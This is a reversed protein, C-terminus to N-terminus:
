TLLVLDRQSCKLYGKGEIIFSAHQKTCQVTAVGLACCLNGLVISQDIDLKWPTELASSFAREITTSFASMQLRLVLTSILQRLTSEQVQICILMGAIGHLPFLSVMFLQELVMPPSIRNRFRMAMRDHLPSVPANALAWSAGIRVGWELLLKEALEFHSGGGLNSPIKVRKNGRVIIELFRGDEIMQFQTPRLLADVVEHVEISAYAKKLYQLASM